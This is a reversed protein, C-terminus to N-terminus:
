FSYLTSSEPTDIENMHQVYSSYCEPLNRSPKLKQGLIKYIKSYDQFLYKEKIGEFSMGNAYDEKIDNKQQDGIDNIYVDPKTLIGYKSVEYKYKTDFDCGTYNMIIRQPIGDDYMKMAVIEKFFYKYALMQPTVRRTFCGNSDRELYNQLDINDLTKSLKTKSGKLYVLIQPRDLGYEDDVLRWYKSKVITVKCKKMDVYFPLSGDIYGLRQIQCPLYPQNQFYDKYNTIMSSVSEPTVGKDRFTKEHGFYVLVLMEPTVNRTYNGNEDTELLRELAAEEIITTRHEGYLVTDLYIIKKKPDRYHGNTNVIIIRTHEIQMNGIDNKSIYWDPKFLANSGLEKYIPAEDKYDENQIEILSPMPYRKRIEGILYKAALVEPTFRRTYHGNGDKELYLDLDYTTLQASIGKNGIMATIYYLGGKVKVAFSKIDVEWEPIVISVLDRDRDIPCSVEDFRDDMSQVMMEEEELSDGFYIMCLKKLMEMRNRILRGNNDVAYLEKIDKQALPESYLNGNIRVSIFVSDEKIETFIDSTSIYSPLEKVQNEISEAEEELRKLDELFYKAALETRIIPLDGKGTGDITWVSLADEFSLIASFRENGVEMEIVPRDEKDFTLYIDTAVVHLPWYYKSFDEKPKRFYSLIDARMQQSYSLLENYKHKLIIDFVLERTDKMVAMDRYLTQREQDTIYFEMYPGDNILRVWIKNDRMGHDSILYNLPVALSNKRMEVIESLMTQSIPEDTVKCGSGNNEDTVRLSGDGDTKEELVEEESTDANENLDEEEEISGSADDYFEKEYQSVDVYNEDDTLTYGSSAEFVYVQKTKFSDQLSQKHCRCCTKKTLWLAIISWVAAVTYLISASWATARWILYWFIGPFWLYGGLYLAYRKKNM